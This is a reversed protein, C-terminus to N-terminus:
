VQETSSVRKRLSRARREAIANDPQASLVQEYADLALEAQGKQEYAHGLNNLAATYNPKLRVAEKYQRIALDYQNQQFYCFGLNNLVEAFEPHINLAKKFNQGAESYLRKELFACGLEYFEEASGPGKKLKPQLRTIVDEVGRSRAVQRFVQWALWSLLAALVLLYFIRITDDM